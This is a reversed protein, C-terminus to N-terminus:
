IILYHYIKGLIEKIASLETNNINRYQTIIKEFYDKIKSAFAKLKEANQGRFRTM